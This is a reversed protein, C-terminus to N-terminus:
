RKNLKDIMLDSIPQSKANKNLFLKLNEINLNLQTLLDIVSKKSITSSQNQKQEFYPCPQKGSYLRFIKPNPQKTCHGCAVSYIFNYDINYHQIFYKCHKCKEYDLKM